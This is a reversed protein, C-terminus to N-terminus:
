NSTCIRLGFHQGLMDSKSKLAYIRHLITKEKTFDGRSAATAADGFLGARHAVNSRWRSFLEKREPPAGM